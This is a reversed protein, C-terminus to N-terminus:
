VETFSGPSSVWYVNMFYIDEGQVTNLCNMERILLTVKNALWPLIQITWHSIPLIIIEYYHTADVIYVIYNIYNHRNQDSHTPTIRLAASSSDQLLCDRCITIKVIKQANLVSNMCFILINLHRIIPKAGHQICYLRKQKRSSDNQKNLLYCFSVFSAYSAVSM